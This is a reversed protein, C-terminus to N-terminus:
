CSGFALAVSCLSWYYHAGSTCCQRGCAETLKYILQQVTQPGTRPSAQTYFHSHLESTSRLPSLFPFTRARIEEVRKKKTLELDRDAELQVIKTRPDYSNFSQKGDSLQVFSPYHHERWQEIQIVSGPYSVEAPLFLSLVSLRVKGCAISIKLFNPDSVQAKSHIKRAYECFILAVERPNTSRM